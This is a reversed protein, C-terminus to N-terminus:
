NERHIQVNKNRKRWKKDNEIRYNERIKNFYACNLIQRKGSQKKPFVFLFDSSFKPFIVM